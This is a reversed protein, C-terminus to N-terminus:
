EKEEQKGNFFDEMKKISEDMSQAVTVEARETQGLYQKGLWILMSANGKEATQFQRRRLSIRGVSKKQKYIEAFSQNYERQCWRDITDPSCRFWGAIEEQTCQIGCLKEFDVKSIETRPRGGAHAM